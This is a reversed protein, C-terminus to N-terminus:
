WFANQFESIRFCVIRFPKWVFKSDAWFVHACVREMLVGALVARGDRGGDDRALRVAHQVVHERVQGSQRPGMRGGDSTHARRKVHSGPFYLYLCLVYTHCLDIGCCAALATPADLLNVFVFYVQSM